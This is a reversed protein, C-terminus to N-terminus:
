LRALSQVHEVETWTEGDRSLQIQYDYIVSGGNDSPSSWSLNISSSTVSKKVLNRPASASSVLTTATAPDSYAGLGASTVAAVRFKYTKGKTLNTVAFGRENSAAHSITQWSSGGNSSFEVRYDSIPLGGNSDPLQWALSLSTGEIRSTTLARPKLAPATLTTFGEELTVFESLGARNQAAVRILYNTGPALGGLTLNVSTSVPKQDETLRVWTQGQDRSTEVIFNTILAGGNYNPATWSLGVSNKTVNKSVL